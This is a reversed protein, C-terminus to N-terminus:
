AQSKLEKLVEDQVPLRKYRPWAKQYWAALEARDEKKLMSIVPLTHRHLAVLMLRAYEPGIWRLSAHYITELLDKREEATLEGAQGCLAQIKKDMMEHCAADGPHSGMGLVGDFLKRNKQLEQVAQDYEAMIEDYAERWAM